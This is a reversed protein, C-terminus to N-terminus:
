AAPPARTRFPSLSFHYIWTTPSAALLQRSTEAFAVHGPAATSLTCGKSITFAICTNAADEDFMHHVRHPMLDILFLLFAVAAILCAVRLPYKNLSDSRM